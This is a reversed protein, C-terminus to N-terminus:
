LFGLLLIGHAGEDGRPGFRGCGGVGGVGFQELLQAGVRALPRLHVQTM